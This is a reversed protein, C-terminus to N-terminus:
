GALRGSSRSTRASTCGLIAVPILGRGATPRSTSGTRKPPTLMWRRSASPLNPSRPAPM